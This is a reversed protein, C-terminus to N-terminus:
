ARERKKPRPIALRSSLILFQGEDRDIPELNVGSHETFQARLYFRKGPQATFSTFGAQRAMSAQVSQREACLHHEGSTVPFSIYTHNGKVAGVWEGDLGIRITIKRMDTLFARESTEVVYVQAKDPAVNTDTRTKAIQVEFQIDKKGCSPQLRDPPPTQAFIPSVFLVVLVACVLYKMNWAIRCVAIRTAMLDFFVDLMGQSAFASVMGSQDREIPHRVGSAAAQRLQGKAFM